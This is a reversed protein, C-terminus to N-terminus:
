DGRSLIQKIDVPANKIRYHEALSQQYNYEPRYRKLITQGYAWFDSNREKHKVFEEM